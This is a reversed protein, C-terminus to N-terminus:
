PQEVEIPIGDTRLDRILQMYADAENSGLGIAIGGMVPVTAIYVQRVDLKPPGYRREIWEKATM